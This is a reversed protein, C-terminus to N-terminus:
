EKNVQYAEEKELGIKVFNCQTVNTELVTNDIALVKDWYM